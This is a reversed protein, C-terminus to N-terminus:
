GLAINSLSLVLTDTDQSTSKRLLTMKVPVKDVLLAEMSLDYLFALGSSQDYQTSLNWILHIVRGSATKRYGDTEFALSVKWKTLSFILYLM